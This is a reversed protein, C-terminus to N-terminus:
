RPLELAPNVKLLNAAAGFSLLNITKRNESFELAPASRSRVARQGPQTCLDAETCVRGRKRLHSCGLHLCGNHM